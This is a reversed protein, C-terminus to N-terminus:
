KLQKNFMEKIDEPLELFGLLEAQKDSPSLKFYFPIYYYQDNATSDKIRVLQGFSRLFQIQEETLTIKPKM